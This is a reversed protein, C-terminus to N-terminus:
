QLITIKVPLPYPTFVERLLGSAKLSDGLPPMLKGSDLVAFMSRYPHDGSVSEDIRPVILSV